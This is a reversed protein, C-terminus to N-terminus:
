GAALRDGESESGRPLSWGLVAGREPDLWRRAAAQVEEASLALTRRLEREAHELDFFAVGFGAALAQQHIREHDFVWDALHVRRARELEVPPLVDRRVAELQDFLVEEVRAPEVGPVLEASIALYGTDLNRSVVASLASCLEGEDVLARQLRSARGDGLASSLLVVAAHDEEGAAPAPLMLIMRPVEGMRREVRAMSTPLEASPHSPREAAGPPLDGFHAEVTALASEDVDGALILVANDTRYFRRHFGALTERGTETLEERTGLVPAGYPHRGFLRAQVRQDLADWPDSEYMSIEELIVQRESDVEADDLSVGAMRDAEIRLAEEFRDHAFNFYYVTADHSTFANNSGGLAQTRRDIEGPAYGSSGKFMMHELFHATGGHGPEEDRTGARYWLASTVTPAQPNVLLCVTLGNGLTEIRAEGPLRCLAETAPQSGSGHLAATM